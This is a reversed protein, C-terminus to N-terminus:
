YDIYLRDCPEETVDILRCECRYNIPKLSYLLKLEDRSWQTESQNADPDTYRMYSETLSYKDCCGAIETEDRHACEKRGSVLISHVNPEKIYREIFEGKIVDCHIFAMRTLTKSYTFREDSHKLVDCYKIVSNCFCLTEIGVPFMTADLIVTSGCLILTKLKVDVADKDCSVMLRLMKMFSFTNYGLDEIVLTHVKLLHSWRRRKLDEDLEVGPVYTSLFQIHVTHLNPCTTIVRELVQMCQDVSEPTIYGLQIYELSKFCSIQDCIEALELNPVSRITLRKLTTNERKAPTRSYKNPILWYMVTDVTHCVINDFALDEIRPQYVELEDINKCLLQLHRNPLTSRFMLSKLTNNVLIDYVDLVYFENEAEPIGYEEDFRTKSRTYIPSLAISAHELIPFRRRSTTVGYIDVFMRNRMVAVPVTYKNVFNMTVKSDSNKDPIITVSKVHNLVDTHDHDMINLNSSMIWVYNDKTNYKMISELKYIDCANFWKNVQRMSFMDNITLWDNIYTLLDSPLSQIHSLRTSVILADHQTKIKKKNSPVGTDADIEEYLIEGTTSDM